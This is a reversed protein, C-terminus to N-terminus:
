SLRDNIMRQVEVLKDYYNKLEELGIGEFNDDKIMRVLKPDLTKERAKLEESRRKEAELEKKLKAEEKMTWQLVSMKATAKSKSADGTNQKDTSSSGKVM